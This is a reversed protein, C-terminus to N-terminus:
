ALAAKKVALEAVFVAVAAYVLALLLILAFVPPVMVPSKVTVPLKVILPMVVYALVCCSKTPSLKIVKFASKGVDTAGNSFLPKSTLRPLVKAFAEKKHTSLEPLHCAFLPVAVPAYKIALSAFVVEAPM